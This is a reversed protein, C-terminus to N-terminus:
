NCLEEISNVQSSVKEIREDDESLEAERRSRGNAKLTFADEGLRLRENLYNNAKDKHSDAEEDEPDDDEDDDEFHDSSIFEADDFPAGLRQLPSSKSQSALLLASQEVDESQTAGSVPLAKVTQESKSAVMPLLPLTKQRPRATAPPTEPAVKAPTKKRGNKGAM